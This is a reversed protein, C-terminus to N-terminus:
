LTMLSYWNCLMRSGSRMYANAERIYQSLSPREDNAALLGSGDEDHLFRCYDEQFQMSVFNMSAPEDYFDGFLKERHDLGCILLLFRKYHLARLDFGKLRDTYAIDDFKIQSGDLGRFHSETEDQSPFLRASGLHSEVSSFVQYINEGDRVMLFVKRNQRNMHENAWPDAYNLDHNTMAM